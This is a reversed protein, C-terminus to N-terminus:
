DLDILWLEGSTDEMINRAQLVTLKHIFPIKKELENKIKTFFGMDGNDDRNLVRGAIKQQIIVGHEACYRTEPFNIATCDYEHFLMKLKEYRDCIDKEVVIKGGSQGSNFSPFEKAQKIVWSDVYWVKFETRGADPQKKLISPIIEIVQDIDM